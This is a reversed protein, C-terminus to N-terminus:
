VAVFIFSSCIFAVVHIGRLLIINLSHLHIQFCEQMTVEDTCLEFLLCPHATIASSTTKTTLSPLCANGHFGCLPQRQPVWLLLPSQPNQCCETEQSPCYNCPVVTHHMCWQSLESLYANKIKHVKKFVILFSFYAYISKGLQSTIYTSPYEECCQKYYSFILIM